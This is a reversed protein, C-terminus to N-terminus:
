STPVCVGENGWDNTYGSPVTLKVTAGRPDGQFVVGFREGLEAVAARLLRELGDSKAEYFSVNYGNCLQEQALHHSKALRIIRDCILAANRPLTVRSNGRLRLAEFAVEDAVIAAFEMHDLRKTM